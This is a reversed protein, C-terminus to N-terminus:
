PEIIADYQIRVHWDIQRDLIRGVIDDVEHSLSRMSIVARQTAFQERDDFLGHPLRARGSHGKMFNDLLAFPQPELGGAVGDLDNALHAVLTIATFTTSV